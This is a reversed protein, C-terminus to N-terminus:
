MLATSTLSNPPGSCSLGTRIASGTGPGPWTRTATRAAPSLGTSAPLRASPGVQDAAARGPGGAGRQPRAPLDGRDCRRVQVQIRQQIGVDGEVAHEDLVVPVPGARQGAQQPPALQPGDDAVHEGEIGGGLCVPDQFVPMGASLDDEVDRAAKFLSM